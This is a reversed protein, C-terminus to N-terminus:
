LGYKTFLDRKSLGATLFRWLVKGRTLWEIRVGNRRNSLIREALYPTVVEVHDALINFIRRTNEWEEPPRDRFRVLNLDTMVMGPSIGGVIIETSKVEAALSDTLYNLARKTTGYLTLGAIQRGDSGLGEMNYLAGWGQKQFGALAALAGYMAGLVNTRILDEILDPDLEWFVTQSQGVGANNIWIDVRGFRQYAFEWLGAAQSHNGMDAPYAAIRDEPYSKGLTDRAGELIDENRGNIVVQHGMRLFNEALGYGIGRSSGTIVINKM